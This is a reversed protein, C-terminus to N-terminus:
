LFTKPGLPQFRNSFTGTTVNKRVGQSEQQQQQQLQQRDILLRQGGGVVARWVFTIVASSVPLILVSVETGVCYWMM